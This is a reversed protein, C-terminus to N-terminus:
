TVSSCSDSLRRFPKARTARRYADHVYLSM